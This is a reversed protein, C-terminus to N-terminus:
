SLRGVERFFADLASVEASPISSSPYADPYAYRFYISWSVAWDERPNYRAYTDSPTRRAFSVANTRYWWEGDGSKAYL